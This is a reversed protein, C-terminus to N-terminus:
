QCNMTVVKALTAFSRQDIGTRSGKTNWKVRPQLASVPDGALYAFSIDVIQGSNVVVPTGLACVRRHLAQPDQFVPTPAHYGHYVFSHQVPQVAQLYAEPIFVPLPPGFRELYRTKFSVSVQLQKERLM